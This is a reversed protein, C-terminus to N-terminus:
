EGTKKKEQRDINRDLEAQGQDSRAQQHASTDPASQCAALAGAALLVFMGHMKKMM